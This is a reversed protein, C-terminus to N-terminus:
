IRILLDKEKRIKRLIWKQVLASAKKKDWTFGLRKQNLNKNEFKEALNAAEVLNEPSQVDVEVAISENLGSIFM